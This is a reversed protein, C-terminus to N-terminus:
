RLWTRPTLSTGADGRQLTQTARPLEGGSGDKQPRPDWLTAFVPLTTAAVLPLGSPTTQEEARRLDTPSQQRKSSGRPWLQNLSALPSPFCGKCLGTVHRTQTPFWAVLRAGSSASRAFGLAPLRPAPVLQPSPPNEAGPPPNVPSNELILDGVQRHKHQLLQSTNVVSVGSVPRIREFSWVTCGLPFIVKQM